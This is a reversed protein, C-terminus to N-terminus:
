DCQVFFFAEAKNVFECAYSPNKRYLLPILTHVKKKKQTVTLLMSQEIHGLALECMLFWNKALNRKMVSEAGFLM